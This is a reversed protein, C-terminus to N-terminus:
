SNEYINSNSTRLLAKMKTRLALSIICEAAPPLTEKCDERLRGTYYTLKESNICLGSIERM